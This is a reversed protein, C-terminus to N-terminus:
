STAAKREVVLKRPHGYERVFRRAERYTFTAANALDLWWHGELDQGAYYFAGGPDRVAACWDSHRDPFRPDFIPMGCRCEGRPRDDRVVWARQTKSGLCLSSEAM